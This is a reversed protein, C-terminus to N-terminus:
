GNATEGNRRRFWAVDAALADRYYDPVTGFLKQLGDCRIPNSTTIKRVDSLKFRTRIGALNLVSFVAAAPYALALPFSPPKSKGLLGAVDDALRRLTPPRPDVVNMVVPGKEGSESLRCITEAILPAASLSRVNSGDGPVRFRGQDTLQIIKQAANSDGEGYILGPRVIFLAPGGARHRELLAAEAEIKSAAYYDGPALVGDEARASDFCDGYIAISSVFLFRRANKALDYLRGTAEVNVRRLVLKSGKCTSRHPMEAAAHFVNESNSLLSAADNEWGPASLDCRVLEVGPGTFLPERRLREPDRVACVVRRKRALLAKLLSRGLCGSAGTLFDTM